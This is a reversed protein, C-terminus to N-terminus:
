TLHSDKRPPFVNTDKIKLSKKKTQIKVVLFEFDTEGKKQIAKVYGDVADILGGVFSHM